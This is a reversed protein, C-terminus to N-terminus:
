ILGEAKLAAQVAPRASIRQHYAALNPLKSLDVKLGHAWNMTVWLYVDAATMQKGVLYERGDLQRAVHAMRSQLMELAQARTEAATQPNFLPTYCGKHLESGVFSQWQQVKYRDFNGVAPMLGKTPAQDALYQAIASGESLTSGDGLVLFPVQGLPNITRYDEGKETQKTRLDVRIIDIALGAERAIIHPSQSCAGPSYYLKM